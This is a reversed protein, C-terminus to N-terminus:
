NRRDTFYSRSQIILLTALVKIGLHFLHRLPNEKICYKSLRAILKPIISSNLKIDVSNRKISKALYIIESIEKDLYYSNDGKTILPSLSIIRHITFEKTHDDRYLAIDGIRPSDVIESFKVIDGDLILPAMSNGSIKLELRDLGM